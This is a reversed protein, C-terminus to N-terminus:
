RILHAPFNKKGIRGDTKEIEIIAKKSLSNSIMMMVLNAIEPDDEYQNLIDKRTREVVRNVTVAILKRYILFLVKELEKKALEDDEEQGSLPTTFADFKKGELYVMELTLRLKKFPSATGNERAQRTTIIIERIKEMAVLSEESNGEFAIFGLRVPRGERKTIFCAISYQSWVESLLEGEFIEAKRTFLGHLIRYIEKKM